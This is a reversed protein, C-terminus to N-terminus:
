QKPNGHLDFLLGVFIYSGLFLWIALDPSFIAVLAAQGCTCARFNTKLSAYTKVGTPNRWYLAGTWLQLLVTLVGLILFTRNLPSRHMGTLRLLAFVLSPVLASVVALARALRLGAMVILTRKGARRDGRYDKFYTYYTMLANIVAVLLLVSLRNPQFVSAATPGCAYGGFLPAMAIMLGFVINGWLGHGKAYEYLVNLLVGALLFVIAIPQLYFWTVLGTAVLLAGSVLLALGPPLEGTVMPRQPANIRDEALGLYDNIIQNVGWSLFLLVLIVLKKEPPPAVEITHLAPTAALYEYYAVGLWGAIGTVFSYYLRMSRIYATLFGFLRAGRSPPHPAGASDHGCPLDPGSPPQWGPSVPPVGTGCAERPLDRGTPPRLLASAPSTRFGHRLWALGASATAFGRAGARALAAASLALRRATRDTYATAM